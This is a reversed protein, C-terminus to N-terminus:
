PRLEKIKTRPGNFHHKMDVTTRSFHFTAEVGPLQLARPLLGLTLGRDGYNRLAGRGRGGGGGGPLKRIM